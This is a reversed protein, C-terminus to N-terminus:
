EPQFRYFHSLVMDTYIDEGHCGGVCGDCRDHGGHDPAFIQAHTKGSWVDDSRKCLQEFSSLSYNFAAISEQGFVGYKHLMDDYGADYYVILDYDFRELLMEVTKFAAPQQRLSFYDINRNRFIQDISSNNIAVIACEWGSEAMVDFITECKLVPKEYAQIGHIEPSAGFFISAFCVPTVSPMVSASMVRIDCLKELRSVSEPFKDLFTDGIADPSYILLKELKNISKNHMKEVVPGVLQAENQAPCHLGCLACVTPALDAISYKVSYKEKFAAFADMILQSSM